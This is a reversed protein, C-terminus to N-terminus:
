LKVCCNLNCVERLINQVGIVIIGMEIFCYVVILKLLFIQLRWVVCVWNSRVLRSGEEEISGVQGLYKFGLGNLVVYFVQFKCKLMYLIYVVRGKIWISVVMEREVM